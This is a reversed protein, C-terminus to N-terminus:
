CRQLVQAGRSVAEEPMEAYIPLSLCRRAWDEAVPFTGSTYGLWKYANLEHVAIPYHIGAQIGSEHLAQLASDRRESDEARIVYLHYISGESYETLQIGDIEALQRSYESALERRANNWADLHALKVRLIAAQITDLRSNLGLEEHHYKERSGWNRLLGLREALDEDNVTILGGDGYAGLNKGPYFSFCGLDGLAGARRGDRTAGHAQAADEIIRLGHQEALELLPDMDVCQGYFHVPMIARTEPRVARAVAEADILATRPDVDVLVPTAGSLSIGLATAVFTFAPMIVEDGPGIDLARCALHLADTGSGVGVGFKAGCYQAFEAEFLKLEKGLIFDGRALVGDVAADVESKITSYQARLDVLPVISEAASM